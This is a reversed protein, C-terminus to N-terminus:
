TNSNHASIESQEVEATPTTDVETPLITEKEAVIETDIESLTQDLSKEAAQVEAESTTQKPSAGKYVLDEEEDHTLDLVQDNLTPSKDRDTVLEEEEADKADTVEEDAEDGLGRNCAQNVQEKYADRVNAQSETYAKEDAVKIKVAKTALAERLEAEAKTIKAKSEKAEARLLDPVAETAEAKEKTQDQAQKAAKAQDLLMKMKAEVNNLSTLFSAVEKTKRVLEKKFAEGKTAFFHAHQIAQCAGDLRMVQAHATQCARRGLCMSQLKAAMGHNRDFDRRKKRRKVKADENGLEWSKRERVKEGLDVMTARTFSEAVVKLGGKWHPKQQVEKSVKVM